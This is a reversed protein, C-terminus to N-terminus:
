LLPGNPKYNIVLVLTTFDSLELAPRTLRGFNNWPHLNGIIFLVLVMTSKEVKSVGPVMKALKGFYLSWDQLKVLSKIWPGNTIVKVKWPGYIVKENLFIQEPAM